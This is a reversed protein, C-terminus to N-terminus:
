LMLQLFFGKVQKLIHDQFEECLTEHLHLHIFLNNNIIQPMINHHDQICLLILIQLRDNNQFNIILLKLYNGNLLSQQFSKKIHVQQLLQHLILFTLHLQYEINQQMIHITPKFYHIIVIDHFLQLLLLLFIILMFNM